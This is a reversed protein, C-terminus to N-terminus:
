VESKLSEMWAPAPQEEVAPKLFRSLYIGGSTGLIALLGIVPFHTL